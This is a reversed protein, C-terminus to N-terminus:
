SKVEDVFIKVNEAFDTVTGWVWKAFEAADSPGIFILIALTIGGIWMGAIKLLGIIKEGM